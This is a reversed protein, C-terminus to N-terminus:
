VHQLATDYAPQPHPALDHCLRRISEAASPLDPQAVRQYSRYAARFRGLRHLAVGRFLWAQRHNPSRWLAQNCCNLAAGPENLLILLVAKQVWFRTDAFGALEQAQELSQLANDYRGLCAMADARSYWSEIDHPHTMLAQEFQALAEAYRGMELYRKGRECRRLAETEYDLAAIPRAPRRGTPLIQRDRVCTEM